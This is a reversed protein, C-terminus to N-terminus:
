YGLIKDILILTTRGAVPEGALIAWKYMHSPRGYVRMAKYDEIPFVFDKVRSLAAELTPVIKNVGSVLVLNRSSYHWAGVRSGNTDCGVIEGSQSIANCGSIFYDAFLSHRRLEDRKQADDEALIAKHLDVWGHQDKRMFDEYGIEVLTTSSGNMVTAGRPIIEKLVQLAQIGEDVQVVRIGRAELSKATSSIEPRRPAKNWRAPDVGTASILSAAGYATIKSM